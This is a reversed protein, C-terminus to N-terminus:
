PHFFFDISQEQEPGEFPNATRAMTGFLSREDGDIKKEMWQYHNDQDDDERTLTMTKTGTLYTAEPLNDTPPSSAFQQIFTKQM